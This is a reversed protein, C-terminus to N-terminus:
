ESRRQQRCFSIFQEEKTIGGKVAKRVFFSGHGVRIKTILSPSSFIGKVLFHDTFPIKV